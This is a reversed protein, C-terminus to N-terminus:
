SQADPEVGRPLSISKLHYHSGLGEAGRERGLGSQKYGGFPCGGGTRMGNNIQLTGTRIQSAVALGRQIDDTFIAGGLGYPSDNAIAIADVDDEYRIVSVVPGFIEERAVRMSNDADAFVTPEVYWGKDINPRGGGLVVKAGEDRGLKIYGEIRERQRASVVPGFQNDVDLPNGIKMPEIASVLRDVVEDYRRNSVLIRTTAVCAQGNNVLASDILTPLFQDLDADDLVIAASKGGLELTVPRIRDGCIAGVRRGAATSGTFTVKDVGPHSVLYEGIEAGGAIISVVGPPLGLAFLADALYYASLPTETAPKLVITCGTLLAPLLKQILMVIPGNWPIIAAIVGIPERLVVVKGIAGDRIERTPLSLATEIERRTLANLGLALTASEIFKRPGGMERIQLDVMSQGHPELLDIMRELYGVREEVTMRPWPGHDFASRAAAVARDIDAPVPEPASGVLQEDIPSIVKITGAGAPKVWEGGIFLSDRNFM